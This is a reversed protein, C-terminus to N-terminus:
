YKAIPKLIDTGCEKRKETHYRVLGCDCPMGEYPFYQPDGAYTWCHGNQCKPCTTNNTHNPTYITEQGGAFNYSAVTASQPRSNENHEDCFHREAFLSNGIGHTAPKDCIECNM